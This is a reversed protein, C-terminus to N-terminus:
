APYKYSITTYCITGECEGKFTIDYDNVGVTHFQGMKFRNGIGSLTQEELGTFQIAFYGILGLLIIFILISVIQKTKKKTNM